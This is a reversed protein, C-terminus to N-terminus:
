DDKKRLHIDNTASVNQWGTIENSSTQYLGPLLNYGLSKDLLNTIRQSGNRKKSTQVSFFCDYGRSGAWKTQYPIFYDAAPRIKEKVEKSMFRKRYEPWTFLRDCVRVLNQKYDYVGSFSIVKGNHELVNFMKYNPWRKRMEDVDYNNSNYDPMSNAYSLYDVIEEFEKIERVICTEM